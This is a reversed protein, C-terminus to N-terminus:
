FPNTSVQLYTASPTLNKSPDLPDYFVPITMEEFVSNSLDKTSNQILQGPVLQSSTISVATAPKGKSYPKSHPLAPSPSSVM